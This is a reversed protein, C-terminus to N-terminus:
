FMFYFMFFLNIKIDADRRKQPQNLSKKKKKKKITHILDKVFMRMDQVWNIVAVHVTLSHNMKLTSDLNLLLKM